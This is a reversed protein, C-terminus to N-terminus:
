VYKKLDENYEKISLAGDSSVYDYEDDQLRSPQYNGLLSVIDSLEKDKSITVFQSRFFVPTEIPSSALKRYMDIRYKIM